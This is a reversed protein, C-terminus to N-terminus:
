KAQLDLYSNPDVAKNNLKLTFHLHEAMELEGNASTSAQGIKQGGVVQDGVAVEVQQALSSYISQFGDSHSITITYGSLYDYDVGIVEGDLVAFVEGTESTLDVSKHAEWQNLTENNQLETASFDKIVTANEMPLSFSLNTTGTPVGSNLTAILTFTLATIFIVLGVAVFIGYKKIFEVFRNKRGIEM